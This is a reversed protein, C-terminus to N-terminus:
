FRVMAQQQRKTCAVGYQLVSGHRAKNSMREARAYFVVIVGIHQIHVIWYHLCREIFKIPLSQSDIGEMVDRAYPM